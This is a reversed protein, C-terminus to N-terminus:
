PPYVQPYCTYLCWEGDPRRRWVAKVRSAPPWRSDRTGTSVHSRGYVDSRWGPGLAASLPMLGVIELGGEAEAARRRQQVEPSRWVAQEARACAMDNRWRTAHLPISREQGRANTGNRARRELQQDTVDVHERMTHAWDPHDRELARLRDVERRTRENGSRSRDGAMLGNM